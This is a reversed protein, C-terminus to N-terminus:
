PSASQSFASHMGKALAQPLSKAAANICRVPHWAWAQTPMNIYRSSPPMAVWADAMAGM